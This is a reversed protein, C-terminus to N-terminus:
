RLTNLLSECPTQLIATLSFDNLLPQDAYKEKSEIVQLKPTQLWVSTTIAQMFISVEHHSQAKGSFNIERNKQTLHTLYVGEPLLTPLEALLHMTEIRSVQLKQLLNIKSILKQRNLELQQIDLLKKNQKISALQIFQISTLQSTQATKLLIHLLSIVFIVLLVTLILLKRFNIIEQQQIDIRWPLLNINIIM